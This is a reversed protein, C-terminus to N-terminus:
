SGPGISAAAGLRGIGPLKLAPSKLSFGIDFGLLNLEFGEDRAIMVGLVGLLSFQYGSASPAAAFLAGDPLYDKGIANSPLEL